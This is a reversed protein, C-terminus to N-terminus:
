ALVFMELEEPKRGNASTPMGERIFAKDLGIQSSFLVSAINTPGRILLRINNWEIRVFLLECIKSDM